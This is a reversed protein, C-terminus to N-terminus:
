NSNQRLLPADLCAALDLHDALDNSICEYINM